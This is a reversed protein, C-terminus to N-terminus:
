MYFVLSFLSVLLTVLKYCFAIKSESYGKHQFHHHLPAMLFIRRGTRKFHLVQLIVSIGSAVFTIGFFPIFLMNGGFISISAIFGGIALSGTDGMFVSAKFTNFTLFGIIAGALTVSLLALNEYEGANVYFASYKVTELKILTAFSLFYLYSVGGALGDLGDTLNVCNTTAIFVLVSIPIFAVGFDVVGGFFPLYVRTMKRNYAYVSIVIAIVLEFITKQWPSLGENRKMKIKVFDDLFGVAMYGLGVAVSVISLSKKGSSVFSFVIVASLVFFLGGMTPTGSKYDHEKVYGLINQGFKLKKLLPIAFFGSILTLVLSCVFAIVAVRM